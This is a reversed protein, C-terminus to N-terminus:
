SDTKLLIRLLKYRMTEMERRVCVKERTYERRVKLSCLAAKMEMM